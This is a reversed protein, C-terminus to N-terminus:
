CVLKNANFAAISDVLAPSRPRLNATTASSTLFKAIFDFSFASSISFIVNLKIVLAFANTVCIFSQTVITSSDTQEDPM